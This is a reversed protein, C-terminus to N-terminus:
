RYVYTRYDIVTGPPADLWDVRELLTTEVGLPRTTQADFLLTFRENPGHQPSTFSVGVGARGLRDRADPDVDLGDVAALAGFVAARLAPRAAPEALLAGALQLLEFTPADHGGARAQLWSLLAAPDTPLANLDGFVPNSAVGAPVDRERPRPVGLQPRGAAEWKERDGAGLFEPAATASVVHVGDPSPAITTVGREIASFGAGDAVTVLHGEEVITVAPELSSDAARASAEQLPALSAHSGALSIAVALAAAVAVASSGGLVRRARRRRELDRRHAARLDQEIVDFYNM